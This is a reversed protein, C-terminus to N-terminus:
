AVLAVRWDVERGLLQPDELTSGFVQQLPAVQSAYSLV